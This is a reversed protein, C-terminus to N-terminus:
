RLFWGGRGRPRGTVSRLKGLDRGGGGGGGRATRTPRPPLHRHCTGALRPRRAARRPRRLGRAWGTGPAGGTRVGAWASAAVTQGPGGGQGAGWHIKGFALRARKFGPKEKLKPVPHKNAVRCLLLSSLSFSLCSLPSPEPPRGPRRCGWSSPQRFIERSSISTERHTRSCAPFFRLKPM